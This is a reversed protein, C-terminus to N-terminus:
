YRHAFAQLAPQRLDILDARRALQLLVVQKVRRPCVDQPAESAPCFRGFGISRGQPKHGIFNLLLVQAVAQLLHRLLKATERWLLIRFPSCHANSKRIPSRASPKARPRPMGPRPTTPTLFPAM